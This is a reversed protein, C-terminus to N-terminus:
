LILHSSPMLSAISMFKPLSQSITLSLSAQHAAIWPTEFLWVHNPSQVDVIPDIGLLPIAPDYPLKVVLKKFSDGDM